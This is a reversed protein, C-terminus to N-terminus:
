GQAPYYSNFLYAYEGRDGKEGKEGDSGKGESAGRILPGVWEGEENIVEGYGEIVLRALAADPALTEAIAAWQSWAVSHLPTRPTMESDDEIRIGLYLSGHAFLDTPFPTVEGLNAVFMGDEFLLGQSEEWVMEDGSETEYLRFRVTFDGNLANGDLDVVLGQYVLTDRTGAFLFTPFFILLIAIWRKM